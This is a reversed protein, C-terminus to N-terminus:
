DLIHLLSKFKSSIDNTIVGEAISRIEAKSLVVEVWGAESDFKEIKMPAGFSM